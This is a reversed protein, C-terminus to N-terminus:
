RGARRRRCRCACGCSIPGRCRRCGRGAPGRCSASRRGCSRLGSRRRRGPVCGCASPPSLSEVEGRARSATVAPVQKVVCVGTGAPLSTNRMRLDSRASNRRAVHRRELSSRLSKRPRPRCFGSSSLSGNPMVTSAMAAPWRRGVADALQVAVDRALHPLVDPGLQGVGFHRDRGIM